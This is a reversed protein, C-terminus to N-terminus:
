SEVDVGAVAEDGFAHWFWLSDQPSAIRSPSCLDCADNTPTAFESTRGFDIEPLFSRLSISFILKEKVGPVFRMTSSRVPGSRGNCLHHRFFELLGLSLGVPM